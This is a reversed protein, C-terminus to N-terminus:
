REKKPWISSGARDQEQAKDVFFGGKEIPRREM